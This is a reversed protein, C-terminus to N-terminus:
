DKVALNLRRNLEQITCVDNYREVYVLKGDKYRVVLWEPITEFAKPWKKAAYLSRLRPMVRHNLGIDTVIINPFSHVRGHLEVCGM